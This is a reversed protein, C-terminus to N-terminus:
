KTVIVNKGKIDFKLGLPYCVEMLATELNSKNFSGSYQMDSLSKNLEVKIDFQRELEAVVDFIKAGKYVFIGKKWTSRRDSEAVNESKQHVKNLVAVSQMPTLITEKGASKVAVKGTECHVNLQNNRNYVNFSTGLVEVSGDNTKVRFKSGKEVSFFAEGELFVVRDEYWTKKNYALRSDANVLVTSGDPLTINETKAFPVNLSTDYDNGLNFIFFILAVAAVAAYPLLKILRKQTPKKKTSQDTKENIRSSINNWVKNETDKEPKDEAFKMALVISKAKDVSDAKDPYDVVWQNWDQSDRSESGKAWRIFSPDESLELHNFQLYKDM